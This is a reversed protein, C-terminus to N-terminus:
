SVKRVKTIDDTKTFKYVVDAVGRYSYSRQEIGIFLTDQKLVELLTRFSDVTEDSLASLGEDIIIMKFSGPKAHLIAYRMLITLVSRYAGGELEKLASGDPLTVEATKEDITLRAGQANAAPVLQGANQIAAQLATKSEREKISLYTESLKVLAIIHNITKVIKQRASTYTNISEELTAAKKQLEVGQKYKTDCVSIAKILSLRVDDVSQQETGM